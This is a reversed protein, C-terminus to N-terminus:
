AASLVLPTFLTNLSAFEGRLELAKLNYAHAAEEPTDFFGLHQKRGEHTVVARYRRGCKHVGRYQVAGRVKHQSQRNQNFTCLRLNSRRNDLPNGNIHDVCYGELPVGMVLHHLKLTTKKGDVRTTAQAWEYGKGQAYHWAYAMAIDMMDADVLAYKGQSLEIYGTGDVIYNHKSFQKM